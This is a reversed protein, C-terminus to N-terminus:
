RRRSARLARLFAGVVQALARACCDFDNHPHAFLVWGKLL